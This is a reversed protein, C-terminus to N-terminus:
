LVGDVPQVHAAKGIDVLRKTAIRGVSDDAQLAVPIEASASRAYRREGIHANSSYAAEGRMPAFRLPSPVGM